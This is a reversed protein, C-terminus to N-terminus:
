LQNKDDKEKRKLRRDYFVSVVLLTETNVSRAIVRLFRTEFKKIFHELSEDFKDAEVRDPSVVTKKIIGLTIKREKVKSKAHTTLKIKM